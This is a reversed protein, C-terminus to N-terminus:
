FGLPLRDLPEVLEDEEYSLHALLTGTLEDVAASLEEIGGPGNVMAVLAEDVRELVEHIMHHEKTLRDLVPALRPEMRRLRPYLMRDEAMHHMTVLRCYSACYAGLTWNNQRMTMTHIEDRAAGAELTGAAVEAVLARVRSLEERLHDHVEVLHAGSSV